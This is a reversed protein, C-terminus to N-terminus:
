YSVTPSFAVINTHDNLTNTPVKHFSSGHYSYLSVEGTHSLIGSMSFTGMMLKDQYVQAPVAIKDNVNTIGGTAIRTWPVTAAQAGMMTLPSLLLVLVLVTGLAVRSSLDRNM